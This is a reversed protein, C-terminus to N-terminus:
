IVLGFTMCQNNKNKPFDRLSIISKYQKENGWFFVPPREHAKKLPGKNFWGKGGLFGM